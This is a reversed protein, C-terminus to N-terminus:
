NNSFTKSNNKIITLRFQLQLLTSVDLASLVRIKVTYLIRMYLGYLKIIGRNYSKSGVLGAGDPPKALPIQWCNGGTLVILSQKKCNCSRRVNKRNHFLRSEALCERNAGGPSHIIEDLNVSKEIHSGELEANYRCSIM